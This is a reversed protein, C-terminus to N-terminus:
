KSKGKGKPAESEAANPAPLSALAKATLDRLSQLADSVQVKTLPKVTYAYGTNGKASHEVGIELAFDVSAGDELQDVADRLIDEVVQPVFLKTSRFIEGTAANVGEFQGHFRTSDGFTTNVVDHKSASGYMAAIVRKEGEGVSHPKPQAGMAKLSLKAVLNPNKEATAANM